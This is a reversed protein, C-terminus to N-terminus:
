TSVHFRAVFSELKSSIEGWDDSRPTEDFFGRGQEEKFLDIMTATWLSLRPPYVQNSFCRHYFWDWDFCMGPDAKGRYGAVHEHGVVREAQELCPFRRQLHSTLKVLSEMQSTPYPFMNGNLNVLEIGISFSNFGSWSTGDATILRSAGAHAGKRIPGDWFEGLDVITGDLDIVFHACVSTDPRTFLDLTKQLSCATYHLVLFEVNVQEDRSFHDSPYAVM